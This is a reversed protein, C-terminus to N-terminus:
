ASQTVNHHRDRIVTRGGGGGSNFIQAASTAFTFAASAADTAAQGGDVGSTAITFAATGTDVLYDDTGSDAITFAATGSDTFTTTAQLATEFIHNM